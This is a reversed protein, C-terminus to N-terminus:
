GKISAILDLLEAGFIRQKQEGIGWISLLELRTAPRRACLEDLTRDWFLTYPPVGMEKSKRARWDRLADRLAPDQGAPPSVV